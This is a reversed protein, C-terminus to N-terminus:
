ESTELQGAIKRHAATMARCELEERSVWNGQALIEPIEGVEAQFVDLRIQYRTISHRLTPLSRFAPKAIGLWRVAADRAAVTKIDIPLQPFEWLGGNVEGIPRQRIWYRGAHTLVVVVYRLRTAPVRASLEPYQTVTGTALARCARAVPCIVCQPQLPTCVTAGLEMLAQNLASHRGAALPTSPADVIDTAAAVFQGALQWILDRVSPEKPDGPVTEWRTLVRAVNGDVLTEPLNFALSAIAGATYPGIGPLELLLERSAPLQGGWRHVTEQAAKQMNRARSYYGLGEWLKLIKDESAAALAPLTPLQEMWRTWYPIVTKVQTQQLMVESVWIAYPDRSRRWPLDRAHLAFWTLLSRAAGPARQHSDARSTKNGASAETQPNSADNGPPSKARPSRSRLPRSKLMASRPAISPTTSPAPPPAGVPPASPPSPRSRPVVRRHGPLNGDVIRRYPHRRPISFTFGRYFDLGVIENGQLVM